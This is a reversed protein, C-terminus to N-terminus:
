DSSIYWGGSKYFCEFRLEMELGGALDNFIRTSCDECAVAIVHGSKDFCCSNASYTKDTKPCANYQTREEVM